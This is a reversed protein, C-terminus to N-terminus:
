KCLKGYDHEVQDIETKKILHASLYPNTQKASLFQEATMKTKKKSDNPYIKITGLFKCQSAITLIGNNTIKQAQKM